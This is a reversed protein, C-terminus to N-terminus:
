CLGIENTDAVGRYAEMAEIGHLRAHMLPLTFLILKGSKLSCTVQSAKWDLSWSNRVQGPSVSGFGFGARRFRDSDSSPLSSASGFGFEPFAIRVRPKSHPIETRAATESGSGGAGRNSLRIGSRNASASQPQATPRARPFALFLPRPRIPVYRRPAPQALGLCRGGAAPGAGGSAPIKHPVRACAARRHAPVAALVM